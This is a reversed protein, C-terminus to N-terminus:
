KGYFHPSFRKPSLIEIISEQLCPGVEEPSSIRNQDSTTTSQFLAGQTVLYWYVIRCHKSLPAEDSDLTFLIIVQSNPMNAVILIYYKPCTQLCNLTIFMTTHSTFTQNGRKLVLEDEPGTITAANGITLSPARAARCNLLLSALLICFRALVDGM